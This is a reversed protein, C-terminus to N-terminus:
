QTRYPSPGRKRGQEVIKIETVEFYHCDGPHCRLVPSDKWAALPVEVVWREADEAHTL